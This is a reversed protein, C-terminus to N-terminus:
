IEFEGIVGGGVVEEGKYIVASQGPAVGTVPEKLSIQYKDGVAKIEKLPTLKGLHRVRVRLDKCDTIEELWNTDSITITSVGGTEGVVLHNLTVEKGTVYLIKGAYQKATIKFGHRQGITYLPLGLHEGIVLGTVDTVEGTRFLEPPLNRTLYEGIESRRSGVESRRGGVFCVDFSEHASAVPLKLGHAIQRVQDKTLDGVPFLLHGLQSPNLTWLFYSQDKFKDVAQFLGSVFQHVHMSKDALIRAYHGTALYDFGSSLAWKLLGGIKIEKNCIICPNPTRGAAYEDLFNAIVIDAFEQSYDLVKLSIQMQECLAVVRGFSSVDCCKNESGGVSGLKLHVGTVDYGQKVLLAAAVGSDVGGSLAVAVKKTSTKM